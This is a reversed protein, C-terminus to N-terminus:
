TQVPPANLDQGRDYTLALLFRNAVTCTGKGAMASIQVCKMARQQAYVILKTPTLLGQRAQRPAYHSLTEM